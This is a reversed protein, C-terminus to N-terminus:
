IRPGSTENLRSKHMRRLAAGPLGSTPLLRGPPFSIGERRNWREKGKVPKAWKFFSDFGNRSVASFSKLRDDLYLHLTHIMAVPNKGDTKHRTHPDEYLDLM